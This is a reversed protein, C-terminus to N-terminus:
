QLHDGWGIVLGQAVRQTQSRCQYDVALRGSDRLPGTGNSLTHFIFNSNSQM